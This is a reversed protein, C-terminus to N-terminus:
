SRGAPADETLAKLDYRLANADSQKIALGEDKTSRGELRNVERVDEMM